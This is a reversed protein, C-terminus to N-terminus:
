RRGAAFLSKLNKLRDNFTGLMSPLVRNHNVPGNNWVLDFGGVQHVPGDHHALRGEMDIISFADDLMGFKLEYDAPTDASLSPSANVEILWPKLNNDILLDYGYRNRGRTVALSSPARHAIDATTRLSRRAKSAGAGMGEWTAGISARVYMEFCHKDNIIAPQVAKLSRVILSQMEFFLDDVAEAGHRSTLYLKLSRVSWKMGRKRDYNDATKQIAVNTLHIFNNCIDEKKMSFRSNSFRGFGSRYLYVKLPSYSTVLAYLRLDFKKGGILYPKELYRQAIYNEAQNEGNNRWRADQMASRAPYALPFTLSPIPHPPPRRPYRPQLPTLPLSGHAPTLRPGRPAPADVRSANGCVKKWDAIQSLRNFLFIGKGQARGIPKMIWVGGTRKFEEVFLGYEAPLSYTQPSFDYKAAEAANGEKELQKKARKLNKILLDKRTLEYHNRFHNIRQGESMYMHDFNEHVWGTDAWNFDWDTESDTEVWNRARMVDCVTNHLSTRFRIVRPPAPGGDQGGDAGRGGRGGRGRDM